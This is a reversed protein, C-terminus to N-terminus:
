KRILFLGALILGAGVLPVWAWTPVYLLIVLVGAGVLIGGIIKLATSSGAPYCQTHVPKEWRRAM